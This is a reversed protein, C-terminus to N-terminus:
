QAALSSLEEQPDKRYNLISQLFTLPVFACLNKERPSQAKRKKATFTGFM